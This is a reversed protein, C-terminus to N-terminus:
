RGTETVQPHQGVLVAEASSLPDTTRRNSGRRLVVECGFREAQEALWPRIWARYEEGILKEAPRPPQIGQMCPIQDDIAAAAHMWLLDSALEHTWVPHGLVHEILEHIAGFNPAMMVGTRASLVVEIPFTKTTM